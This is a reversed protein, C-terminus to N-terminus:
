KLHNILNQLNNKINGKTIPRGLVLWDSGNRFAEKPTLVRKQDNSKSNFRIGPTIIERKFVKLCTAVDTIKTKYVYSFLRSMLKNAISTRLYINNRTKNGIFRSGCIFNLSERRICVILDNLDESSYELDADFIGIIGGSAEKIGINVAFGKGRNKDFNILKILEYKKELNLAIEKSKDTSGDNVLIIEKKFQENVLRLVAKELTAEENYFPVIISNLDKSFTM